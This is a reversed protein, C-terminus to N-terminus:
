CASGPRIGDAARMLTSFYPAVAVNHFLRSFLWHKCEAFSTLIARCFSTTTSSQNPSPLTLLRPSVDFCLCGQVAEGEM